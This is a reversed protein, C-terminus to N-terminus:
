PKIFAELRRLNTPRASLSRPAVARAPVEGGDDGGGCTYIDFLLYM